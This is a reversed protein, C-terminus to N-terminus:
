EIYIKRLREPDAGLEKVLYKEMGGYKEITEFASLLYSEKVTYYPVLYPKTRTYSKWYPALNETSALYDKMITEMAAGLAYLILASALGTRDKGASCHYLVPSNDPDALLSFLERYRPIGEVPIISYLKLMESEAGANDPNIFWEGDKLVVGILNGADIPLNVMKKVSNLYFAATKEGSSRFDVITKIGLDELIKTDEPTINEPSGSRYILGRKIRGHKACEHKGDKNECVSVPYGGLERTNLLGGLPLRCGISLQQQISTM